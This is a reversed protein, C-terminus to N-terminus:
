SVPHVAPLEGRSCFPIAHIAASKDFSSRSVAVKTLFDYVWVVQQRMSAKCLEDVSRGIEDSIETVVLSRKKSEVEEQRELCSLRETDSSKIIGKAVLQSVIEKKDIHVNFEDFLADAILSIPDHAQEFQLYLWYLRDRNGRIRGLHLGSSPLLLLSDRDSESSSALSSGSSNLGKSSMSNGFMTRMCAGPSRKAARVFRIMIYEILDGWCDKIETESEMILSFQFVITVFRILLPLGDDTTM